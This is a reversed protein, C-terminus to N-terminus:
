QGLLPKNVIESEEKAVIELAAQGGTVAALTLRPLRALDLVDIMKQKLEGDGSVLLLGKSKAKKM